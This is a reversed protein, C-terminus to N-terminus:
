RSGRDTGLGEELLTRWDRDLTVVIEGRDQLGAKENEMRFSMVLVKDGRNRVQLSGGSLVLGREPDLLPGWRREGDEASLAFIARRALAEPLTGGDPWQLDLVWLDQNYTGVVLRMRVDFPDKLGGFMKPAVSRLLHAPLGRCEVWLATSVGEDGGRRSGQGQCVAGELKGQAESIEWRSPTWHFRGRVETGRWRGLALEDARGEGQVDTLRLHEIGLIMRGTGGRIRERPGELELGEVSLRVQWRRPDPHAPDSLIARPVVLRARRGSFGIQSVVEQLVLRDPLHLTQRRVRLDRVTFPVRRGDFIWSGSGELLWPTNCVIWGGGGLVVVLLILNLFSRM